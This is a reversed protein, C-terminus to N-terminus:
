AISSVEDEESDWGGGGGSSGGGGVLELEGGGKGRKAERRIGHSDVCVPGCEQDM